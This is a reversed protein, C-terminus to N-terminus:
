CWDTLYLNLWLRQIHMLLHAKYEPAAYGGVYQAHAANDTPVGRADNNECASMRCSALTYIYSSHGAGFIAVM